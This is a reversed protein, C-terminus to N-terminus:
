FERQQFVSGKIIVLPVTCNEIQLSLSSSGSFYYVIHIFLPGLGEVLIGPTVEDRTETGTTVGHSETTADGPGLIGQINIAVRGM